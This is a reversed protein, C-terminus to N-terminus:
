LDITLSPSHSRACCLAVQTRREGDSLIFDRHDPEGASYGVVCEGCIGQECSTATAIGAQRLADAISVGPPVAIRTGSRALVVEFGDAAAGEAPRDGAPAAFFEAHVTGPPWVATRQAVAAMLAAPGCHYLHTGAPQAGPQLLDALVVRFAAGDFFLHATGRRALRDIEDRFAMKGAGRACYYLSYDAGQRELVHLMPIMPTIGIGGAVLLHHGARMDLPFGNRPASIELMDGCRLAHVSRSGGRGDDQRLVAIRYRSGDAPDGCLSYQRVMDPPLHLDIHAGAEFPPLGGADTAALDLINIAEAAYDIRQLRVQLRRAAPGAGSDSCAGTMMM